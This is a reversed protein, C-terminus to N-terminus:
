ARHYPHGSLITLARYIQEAALARALQHPWTMAGLALSLDAAALLTPDHGDPGGIAIMYAPTGGDRAAALDAAFGASTLHRGREDLAILRAGPPRLDLLARSEAAKRDAARGARSEPIERLSVDPLGVARACSAARGIYRACLESEAGSKLRGVCALLLRM